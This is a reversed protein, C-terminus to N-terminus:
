CFDLAPIPQWGILIELSTLYEYSLLARCYEIGISFQGIKVDVCFGNEFSIMASWKQAAEQRVFVNIPCNYCFEQVPIKSLFGRSRAMLIPWGIWCCVAQAPLRTCERPLPALQHENVYGRCGYDVLEALLRNSSTVEVWARFWRGGVHVAYYSPFNIPVFSNWASRVLPGLLSQLTYSINRLNSILFRSNIHFYANFSHQRWCLYAPLWGTQPLSPWAIEVMRPKDSYTGGYNRWKRNRKDNIHRMYRGPFLPQEQYCDRELYRRGHNGRRFPFRTNKRLKCTPPVFSEPAERKWQIRKVNSGKVQVPMHKAKPKNQVFNSHRGNEQCYKHFRPKKHKPSKQQAVLKQIHSMEESDAAHCLLEKNPGGCLKVVHPISVLYEEVTMSGLKQLPFDEGTVQSYEWTLKKLPIGNKSTVLVARLMSEIEPLLVM